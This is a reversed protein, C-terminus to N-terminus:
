TPTEVSALSPRGAKVNVSWLTKVLGKPEGPAVKPVSLMKGASATSLKPYTYATHDSLVVM